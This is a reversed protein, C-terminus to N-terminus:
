DVLGLQVKLARDIQEMQFNRLRGMYSGLEGVPISTVQDALAISVEEDFIIPVQQPYPRKVSHTLPVVTVVRSVQNCVDNSVVVVPRNGEQIHQRDHSPCNWWWVSGRKIDM